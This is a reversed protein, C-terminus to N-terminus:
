DGYGGGAMSLPLPAPRRRVTDASGGQGGGVLFRVIATELDMGLVARFWETDTRVKPFTSDVPVALDDAWQPHRQMLPLWFRDLTEPEFCLTCMVYNNRLIERTGVHYGFGTKFKHALTARQDVLLPVGAFWLKLALTIETQGYGSLEAPWGGIRKFVDLPLAYGPAVFCTIEAPNVPHPHKYFASALRCKGEDVRAYSGYWVSASGYLNTLCASVCANYELATEAIRALAGPETRMHGDLFTIADGTAHATGLNRTPAVGIRTKGPAYVIKVAPPLNECCGDTSHDDVVIIEVPCGADDLVSAVTREVEEGENHVGIVVSLLGPAQPGRGSPILRPYGRLCGRLNEALQTGTTVTGDVALADPHDPLYKAPDTVTFVTVTPIGCAAALHGLGNDIGVYFDSVAFVDLVDELTATQGTHEGVEIIETDRDVAARFDDWGEWRKAQNEARPGPQTGLAIRVPPSTPTPTEPLLARLSASPAKGVVNLQRACDMAWDRPGGAWNSPTIRMAADPAREQLTAAPCVCLVADAPGDFGYGLRDLIGRMKPAGGGGLAVSVAWGARRCLDMAGLHMCVDGIGGNIIWLLAGAPKRADVRIGWGSKHEAALELGYGQLEEILDERTWGCRHTNEPYSQAGYVLRTMREGSCEGAVIRRAVERMEPVDVILRGGPVLAKAWAKLTAHADDISLHEFSETARIERPQGFTAVLGAVDRIDARAFVIGSPADLDRIDVNVFGRLM